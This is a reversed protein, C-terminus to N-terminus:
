HLLHKQGQCSRLYVPLKHDTFTCLIKCSTAKELITMYTNTRRTKRSLYVVIYWEHMKTTVLPAHGSHPGWRSHYCQRSIVSAIILRSKRSPVRQMVEQRDLPAQTAQSLLLYHMLAHLLVPEICHLPAVAEIPSAAVILARRFLHFYQCFQSLILCFDHM